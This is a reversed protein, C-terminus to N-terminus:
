PILDNHLAAVSPDSADRRAARRNAPPATLTSRRVLEPSPKKPSKVLSPSRKNNLKRIGETGAM